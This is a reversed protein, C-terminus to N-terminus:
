RSIKRGKSEFIAVTEDWAWWPINLGIHKAISQASKLHMHGTLLNACALIALNDGINNKEGPQRIKACNVPINLTIM